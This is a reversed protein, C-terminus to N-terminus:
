PKSNRFIVTDDMLTYQLSKLYFYQTFINQLTVQLHMKENTTM